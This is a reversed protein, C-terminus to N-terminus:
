FSPFSFCARHSAFHRVCRKGPHSRCNAQSRQQEHQKQSEAAVGARLLSSAARDFARDGIRLARRDGVGLQGGDARTRPQGQFGGTILVAQEMKQDHGDASVANGDLAAAEGLVGRANGHVDARADVQRHM